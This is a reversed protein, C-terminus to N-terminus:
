IFANFGFQAQTNLWCIEATEEASSMDEDQLLDPSSRSLRAEFFLIRMQLTSELVVLAQTITREHPTLIIPSFLERNPPFFFLSSLNGTNLKSTSSRWKLIKVRWMKRSKLMIFSWGIFIFCTTMFAGDHFIILGDTPSPFCCSREAWRCKGSASTQRNGSVVVGAALAAGGGRHLEAPVRRNARPDPGAGVGARHAGPPRHRWGPLLHARRGGRGRLRVLRRM